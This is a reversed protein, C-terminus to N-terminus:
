EDIEEMPCPWDPCEDSVMCGHDWFPCDSFLCNGM